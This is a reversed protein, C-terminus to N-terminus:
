REKRADSSIAPLSESLGSPRMAASYMAPNKRRASSSGTPSSPVNKWFKGM